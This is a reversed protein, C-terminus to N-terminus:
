HAGAPHKAQKKGTSGTSGQVEARGLGLGPLQSWICVWGHGAGTYLRDPAAVDGRRGVQRTDEGGTGSRGEVTTRLGDMGMSGELAPGQRCGLGRSSGSVPKGQAVHIKEQVSQAGPGWGWPEMPRDTCPCHLPAHAHAARAHPVCVWPGCAEYTAMQRPVSRPLAVLQSIRFAVRGQEERGPLRPECSTSYLSSIYMVDSQPWVQRCTLLSHAQRRGVGM